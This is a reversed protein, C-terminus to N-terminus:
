TGVLQDLPGLILVLQIHFYEGLNFPTGDCVAKYKRGEIMRICSHISPNSTM